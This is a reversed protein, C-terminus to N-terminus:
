SQFTDPPDGAAMRADFLARAEDSNSHSANIVTVKLYSRNFEKVLANFAEREGGSTWWSFVELGGDLSKANERATGDGCGLTLGLAIALELSVLKTRRMRMPKASRM